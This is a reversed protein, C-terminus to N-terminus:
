ENPVMSDNWHGKIMMGDKFCGTVGHQFPGVVMTRLDSNRLLSIFSFLFSFLFSILCSKRVGMEDYSFQRVSGVVGEVIESASSSSSSSRM